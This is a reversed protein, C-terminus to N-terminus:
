DLREFTVHLPGRVDGKADKGGFVKEGAVTFTARFGKEGASLPVRDFVCRTAGAEVPKKVEVDGRRFSAHGSAKAVFPGGVWVDGKAWKIRGFPELTVRYDGAHVVDIKMGGYTQLRVRPQKSSGVQTVARERTFGPNSSVDKFWAEYQAKMKEVLAPHKHAIDSREGPDADMDFLEYRFVDEPVPKASPYGTRKNGVGQVLKYRQNRVMFCRRPQPTGTPYGQMVLTRGPWDDHATRGTLLPMLSVGDFKVERPPTIGAAELLTPMIDVHAAVRDIRSGGPFRAPWGMLCPVRIGGEYVTGKKGRLGATYVKDREWVGGNDSLFIVITDDRIGLDDLKSMLRGFREDIHTVMGYVREAQDHCVKDKYLDSYEKPVQAPLHPLNTPIYVFFPRRSNREIFAEAEDFWVDNCYGDFPREEGDVQLIPDFYCTKNHPPSFQGKLHVVTRDFGRDMARLPYYTGLNGWKGFCGTAYGAAKFAESMALEDPHLPQGVWTVNLRYAQRGTLLAARTPTCCPSAYFQSFEVGERAFRDLNPTRIIKNGNYGVDGYGQDDTLVLIVNPRGGVSRRGVTEGAPLCSVLSPAGAGLAGAGATKVFDRRNM